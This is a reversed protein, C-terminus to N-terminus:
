KLRTFYQVYDLKVYLKYVYFLVLGLSVPLQLVMFISRNKSCEERDRLVKDSYM